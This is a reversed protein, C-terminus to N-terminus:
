NISSEVSLDSQALQLQGCENANAVTYGTIGSYVDEVGTKVSYSDDWARASSSNDGFSEHFLMTAGQAWSVGIALTALLLLSIFKKM